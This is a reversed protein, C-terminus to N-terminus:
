IRKKRQEKNKTKNIERVHGINIHIRNSEPDVRSYYDLMVIAVDIAEGFEKVDPMEDRSGQAM